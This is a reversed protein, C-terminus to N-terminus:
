SSHKQKERSGGRSLCAWTEKGDVAETQRLFQGLLAKDTWNQRCEKSRRSKFEKASELVYDPKRAASILKEESEQIYKQLGLIETRTALLLLIIIIIIIIILISTIM